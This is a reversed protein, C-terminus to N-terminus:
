FVEGKRARALIDDAERDSLGYTEVAIKTSIYGLALDRKVADANREKPAGYGAGGPFAM